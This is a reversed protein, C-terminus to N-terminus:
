SDLFFVFCFQLIYAPSVTLWCTCCFKQLWAVLICPLSRQNNLYLERNTNSKRVSISSWSRVNQVLWLEGEDSPDQQDMKAHYQTLLHSAILHRAGGDKRGEQRHTSPLRPGLVEQAKLCHPQTVEHTNKQPSPPQFTSPPAKSNLFLLSLGWPRTNSCLKPMRDKTQKTSCTPGGCGQGGWVCVSGKETERRHTQQNILKDRQRSETLCQTM